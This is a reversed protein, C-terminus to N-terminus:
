RSDDSKPRPQVTQIDGNHGDQKCEATRAVAMRYKRRKVFDKDTREQDQLHPAPTMYLYATLGSYWRLRPERDKAGFTSRAEPNIPKV